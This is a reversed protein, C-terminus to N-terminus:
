EVSGRSQRSMQFGMGALPCKDACILAAVLRIELVLMQLCMDFARMGVLSGVFTIPFSTVLAKESRSAQLSMLIGVNSMLSEAAICVWRAVLGKPFMLSELAM